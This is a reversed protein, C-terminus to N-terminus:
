STSYSTVPATGGLEGLKGVTTQGKFSFYGKLGRTAVAVSAPEPASPSLVSIRPSLSILVRRKWPGISSRTDLYVSLLRGYVFRVAPFILFISDIDTKLLWM